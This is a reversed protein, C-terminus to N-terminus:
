RGRRHELKDLRAETAKRDVRMQEDISRKFSDLKAGIFERDAEAQQRMQPAVVDSVALRMFYPGYHMALGAMIAIAAFVGLVYWRMNVLKGVRGWMTQQFGADEEAHEDLAKQLRAQGAALHRLEVAVVGSPEDIISTPTRDNM